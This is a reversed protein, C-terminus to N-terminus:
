QLRQPCSAASAASAWRPQSVRPLFAASECCPFRVELPATCQSLDHLATDQCQPEWCLQLCHPTGGHTVTPGAEGRVATINKLCRLTHQVGPVTGAERDRDRDRDGSLLMPCCYQSEGAHYKWSPLARLTAACSSQQRQNEELHGM